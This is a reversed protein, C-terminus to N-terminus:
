LIGPDGRPYTCRAQLDMDDPSRECISDGERCGREYYVWECNELTPSQAALQCGTLLLFILYRM